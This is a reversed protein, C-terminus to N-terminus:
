KYADSFSNRNAKAIKCIQWCFSPVLQRCHKVVRKKWHKMATKTYCTSWCAHNTNQLKHAIQGVEFHWSTLLCYISKYETFRNIQMINVINQVIKKDTKRKISISPRITHKKHFDKPNTNLTLSHIIYCHEPM